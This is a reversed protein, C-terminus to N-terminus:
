TQPQDTIVEFQVFVLRSTSETRTRATLQSKNLEVSARTTRKRREVEARAKTSKTTKQAQRRPAMSLSNNSYSFFTREPARKCRFLANDALQSHFQFSCAYHCHLALVDFM